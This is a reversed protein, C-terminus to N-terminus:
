RALKMMPMFDHAGSHSSCLLSLTGSNTLHYKIEQCSQDPQWYAGIGNLYGNEDVHGFWAKVHWRVNPFKDIVWFPENSCIM